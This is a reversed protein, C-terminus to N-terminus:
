VPADERPVDQGGGAGPEPRSAGVLDPSEEAQRLLEEWEMLKLQRNAADLRDIFLVGNLHDLEHQIVRAFFGDTIFEMPDGNEDKARVRIRRSRTVDATLGPFSLCGEAGLESLEEENEPPLIEVVPNIFAQREEPSEQTDVVFVRKLIGVQAAALGVGNAAYMTEFMDEVLRRTKRTVRKIAAAEKRLVPDPFIRIDLTAM